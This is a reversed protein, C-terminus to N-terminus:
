CEDLRPSFSARRPLQFNSARAALVLLGLRVVVAAEDALFDEIQDGRLVEVHLLVVSVDSDTADAAFPLLRRNGELRVQAIVEEAIAEEAAAAALAEAELVKQLVMQLDLVVVRNLESAIQAHVGRLEFDIELPM